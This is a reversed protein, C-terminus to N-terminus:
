GRILVAGDPVEVDCSTPPRQLGVHRDPFWVRCLGAPPRQGVPVRLVRAADGGAEASAGLLGGAGATPGATQQVLRLRGDSGPAPGLALGEGGDQGPAGAPLPAGPPPAEGLVDLVRPPGTRVSAAAPGDCNLVAAEFSDPALEACADPAGQAEASGALVLAALACLRVPHM